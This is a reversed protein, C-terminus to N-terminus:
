NKWPGNARDGWAEVVFQDFGGRSAPQGDPCSVGMADIRVDIREYQISGAGGGIVVTDAGQNKTVIVVVVTVAALAAGVLALPRRRGVRRPRRDDLPPRFPPIEAEVFAAWSEIQAELSPRTPSDTM